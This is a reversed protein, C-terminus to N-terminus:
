EERLFKLWRRLAKMYMYIQLRRPGMGGEKRGGEKRGLWKKELKRESSRLILTKETATRTSVDFGAERGMGVGVGGVWFLRCM